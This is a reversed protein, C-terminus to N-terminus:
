FSASLRFDSKDIEIHRNKKIGPSLNKFINCEYIDQVIGDKIDIILDM